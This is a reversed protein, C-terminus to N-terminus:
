RRVARPSHRRLSAMLLNSGCVGGFRRLELGFLALLMALFLHINGSYNAFETAM